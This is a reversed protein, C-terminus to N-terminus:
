SGLKLGIYAIRIMGSEPVLRLHIRGHGSTVRAHLDFLRDRGDLDTFWCVNQCSESTLTM